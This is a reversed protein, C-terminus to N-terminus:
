LLSPNLLGNTARGIARFGGLYSKLHKTAVGHFRLMWGKLRSDYANVNQVHYVGCVVKFNAASNVPRHVVGVQKTSAALVRSGVTCLIAGMCIDSQLAATMHKSDDFKLVSDITTGARDLYVPIQM